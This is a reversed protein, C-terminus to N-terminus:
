FDKTYADFWEFFGSDMSHIPVLRVLYASESLVNNKKRPRICPRISTNQSRHQSKPSTRLTSRCVITEHHHPSALALPSAPAEDSIAVRHDPPEPCRSKAVIPANSICKVLRYNTMTLGQSTERNEGYEVEQAPRSHKHLITRLM